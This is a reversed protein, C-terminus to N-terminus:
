GRATQETAKEGLWVNWVLWNQWLLNSFVKLNEKENNKLPRPVLEYDQIQRGSAWSFYFDGFPGFLFPWFYFIVLFAVVFVQM